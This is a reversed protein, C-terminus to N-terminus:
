VPSKPLKVLSFWFEKIQTVITQFQEFDVPKTVYCNAQLEYSKVIDLQAQSTTLVVVPIANTKPDKKIHQLLERGDMRPMNLDLLILDPINVDAFQNRKHLFDLAEIGDSVHNLVVHMKSDILAEKTLLADGENDEVLLIEAPKGLYEKLM